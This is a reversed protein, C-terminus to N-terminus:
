IYCLGLHIDSFLETSSLNMNIMFRSKYHKKYITYQIKNSVLRCVCLLCSNFQFRSQSDTTGHNNKDVLSYIRDFLFLSCMTFLNSEFWICYFLVYFWRILDVWRSQTPIIVKLLSGSKVICQGSSPMMPMVVIHHPPSVPIWQNKSSRKQEPM